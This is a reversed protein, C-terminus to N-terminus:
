SYSIYPKVLTKWYNGISIWALLSHIQPYSHIHYGFGVSALDCCDHHFRWWLQPDDFAGSLLTKQFNVISNGSHAVLSSRLNHVKGSSTRRGKRSAWIRFGHVQQCFVMHSIGLVYGFYLCNLILTLNPSCFIHANTSSSPWPTRM